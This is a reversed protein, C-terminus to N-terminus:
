KNMAAIQDLGAKYIGAIVSEADADSAGKADFKGDWMIMSGSGDAMVGFTSRYNQVPLPSEVIEYTYNTAGKEVLKEKIKGGDALTLMRYTDGGEESIECGKVAPHWDKIACFDGITQWLTDPAAKAMGSQHVDIAQATGAGLMAAAAIAAFRITRM